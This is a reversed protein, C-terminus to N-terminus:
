VEVGHAQAAASMLAADAERMQEEKQAIDADIRAIFKEHEQVARQRKSELGMKEARLIGYNAGHQNVPAMDVEQAKAKLEEHAKIVLDAKHKERAMDSARDRAEMLIATKIQNPYRTSFEPRPAYQLMPFMECLKEYVDQIMRVPEGAHVGTEWRTVSNPTVGVDAAVDAQSMGHKERCHRLGQGFTAVPPGKWSTPPSPPEVIIDKKLAAKAAKPDARLPIPLMDDFAAIGSLHKRLYEMHRPTPYKDGREWQMIEKTTADKVVRNILDRQSWQKRLRCLKLADGWITPQKEALAAFPRATLAAEGNTQM